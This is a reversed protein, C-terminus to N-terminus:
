TTKLWSVVCSVVMHLRCAMTHSTAEALRTRMNSKTM